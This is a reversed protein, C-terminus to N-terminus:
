AKYGPIWRVETKVRYTFARQQAIKMGPSMGRDVYFVVLDASRMWAYGAEMGQKREEPNKDDLPVTYFLHSAFPAEGRALCDRVALWAYQVNAEIGEATDDAYPSEVIVKRM